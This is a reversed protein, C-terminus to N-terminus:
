EEKQGIAKRAREVRRNWQWQTLGMREDCNADLGDLLGRLADKLAAIEKDVEDADYVRRERPEDKRFSNAIWWAKMVKGGAVM